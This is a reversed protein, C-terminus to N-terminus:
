LSHHYIFHCVPVSKIGNDLFTLVRQPQCVASVACYYCSLAHSLGGQEGISHSPPALWVHTIGADAIDEVKGMLLNYVKWEAELVGLQLGICMFL